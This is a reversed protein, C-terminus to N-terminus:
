LQCSGSIEDMQLHRSVLCGFGSRRPFLHHCYAWDKFTGIM